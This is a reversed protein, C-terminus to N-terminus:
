AIMTSFGMLAQAYCPGKKKKLFPKGDFPM